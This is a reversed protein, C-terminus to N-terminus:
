DEEVVVAEDPDTALAMAREWEVAFETVSKGESLAVVDLPVRSTAFAPATTTRRDHVQAESTYVRLEADDDDDDVEDAAALLDAFSVAATAPAPTPSPDQSPDLYIRTVGDALHEVTDSAPALYDSESASTSTSPKPKAAAAAVLAELEPWTYLLTDTTPTFPNFDVISPERDAQTLYVDFVYTELPFVDRVVDEFYDHIIASLEDREAVLFEYFHSVDRQSIAVIERGYVWCRFELGPHLPAWKRLVLKPRANDPHDLDHVVFDSAKLLLTIDRLSTCKLSGDLAIWAADRPSSWNLKPFVAGGLSAIATAVASELAPFEPVHAEADESDADEADSGDNHTDELADTDVEDHYSYLVDDGALAIGDAHLYAVYDDPLDIVVSRVTEKRFLPYWQDFAFPVLSQAPQLLDSM